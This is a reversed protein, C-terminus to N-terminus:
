PKPPESTSQVPNSTVAAAAANLGASVGKVYSTENSSAIHAKAAFWHTLTAIVGIIAMTIAMASDNSFTLTIGAGALIHAVIGLVRLVASDILTVELDSSADVDTSIM